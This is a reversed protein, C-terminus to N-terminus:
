EYISTIKVIDMFTLNIKCNDCLYPTNTKLEKKTKYDVAKLEDFYLQPAQCNFCHYTRVGSDDFYQWQVWFLTSNDKNQTGAFIYHINDSFSQRQPWVFFLPSDAPDYGPQISVVQGIYKGVINKRYPCFFMKTKTEEIPSFLVTLANTGKVDKLM